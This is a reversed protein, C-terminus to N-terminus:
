RRRFTARWSRDHHECSGRDFTLEHGLDCAGISSRDTHFTEQDWLKFECGDALMQAVKSENFTQEAGERSWYACNDCRPRWRDSWDSALRRLRADFIRPLILRLTNIATEVKDVPKPM